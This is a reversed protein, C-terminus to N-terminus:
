DQSSQAGPSSGQAQRRLKALGQEYEAIIDEIPMSVWKRSEADLKAFEAEHESRPPVTTRKAEIVRLMAARVEEAADILKQRTEGRQLVRLLEQERRVLHEKKKTHRPIYNSV